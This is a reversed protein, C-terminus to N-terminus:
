KIEIYSRSSFKQRFKLPTENNFSKFVKIFYNYDDFGVESAIIQLSKNTNILKDKAAKMKFKLIYKKPSLGSSYKVESELQKTSMFFNKAIDNISVNVGLNKELYPDLEDVLFSDKVNILKTLKAYEMLTDIINIISYYKKETFIPTKYFYEMALNFDKGTKKCVCSIKETMEKTTEQERFPGIRVYFHTNKDFEYYLMIEVFGFHCKYFFPKKTNHSTKLASAISCNCNSKEIELFNSCFSSNNKNEVHTEEYTDDYFAINAGVVETMSTLLENLKKYDYSIM